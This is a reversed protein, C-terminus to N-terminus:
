QKGGKEPFKALIEIKHQFANEMRAALFLWDSLRNFYRLLVPSIQNKRNLTVLNREVRRCVARSWFLYAGGEAGGPLVFEMLPPLKQVWKACERELRQVDEERIRVGPRKTATAVDAGAIFLENQVRLIRKEIDSDKVKQVAVGLLSNLEDIEGLCHIRPHDKWLQKEGIASTKGRDGKRTVVKDIRPKKRM